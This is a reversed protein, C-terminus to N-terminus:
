SWERIRDRAAAVAPQSPWCATFRRRPDRKTPVIRFHYGLFDFGGGATNLDVIRTKAAALELGLEDLLRHLTALAAEARDQTGCCIM